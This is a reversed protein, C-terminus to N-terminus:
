NSEESNEQRPLSRPFEYVFKMFMALFSLLRKADKDQILIIEHNAENGKERIYNVWHKGGPPIYGNDQLWEVYYKFTQDKDAGKEVAIHMLLKRCVIAASTYASVGICQRAENYLEQIEDPLHKISEGFPVGPIQKVNIHTLNSFYTPKECYPCIYIMDNRSDSSYATDPAASNNCYGCTFKKKKVRTTNNWLM